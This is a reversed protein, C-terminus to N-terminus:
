PPHSPWMRLAIMAKLLMMTLLMMPM